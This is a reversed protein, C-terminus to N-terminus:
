RAYGQMIQTTKSAINICNDFDGADRYDEAKRLAQKIPSALQALPPMAPTKKLIVIYIRRLENISEQCSQAQVNFVLVILPSILLLRIKKSM